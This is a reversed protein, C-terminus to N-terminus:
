GAKGRAKSSRPKRDAATDKDNTRKGDDTKGKEPKPVLASAQKALVGAYGGVDGLIIKRAERAMSGDPWILNAVKLRVFTRGARTVPVGAIQALRDIDITGAEEWLRALQKRLDLKPNFEPDAFSPAYITWAVMVRKAEADNMILILAERTELSAKIADLSKM